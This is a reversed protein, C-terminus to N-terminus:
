KTALVTIFDGKGCLSCLLRYVPSIVIFVGSHIRIRRKDLLNNLTSGFQASVPYLRLEIEEFGARVLLRYVSLTTHLFLHSPSQRLSSHEMSVGMSVSDGAPFNMVLVGGPRLMSWCRELVLEPEILHEFVHELRICDFSGQPYENDLFVGGTAQIGAVKLRNRNIRNAELDFGHLNRYGLRSMTLLWNGSGFGLEFIRADKPLTLPIALTYSITKGSLWESGIALFKRIRTSLRSSSLSPYRWAALRYKLSNAEADPLAVNSDYSGYDSDYFTQLLDWNPKPDVYVLGCVDCRLLDYVWIRESGGQKYVHKQDKLLIQSKAQGCAECQRITM